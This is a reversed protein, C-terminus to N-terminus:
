TQLGRSRRLPHLMSFWEQVSSSESGSKSTHVPWACYPRRQQRGDCGTDERLHTYPHTYKKTQNRLMELTSLTPTICARRAISMPGLKMSVIANRRQISTCYELSTQLLLKTRETCPFPPPPFPPPGDAIANVRPKKRKKGQLLLSSSACKGSSHCM